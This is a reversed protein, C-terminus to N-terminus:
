GVALGADAFGPYAEQLLHEGVIRCDLNGDVHRREFERLPVALQQAFNGAQADFGTRCEIRGRELGTIGIHRDCRPVQELPQLALADNGRSAASVSQASRFLM